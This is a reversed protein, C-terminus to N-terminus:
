FTFVSLKIDSLKCQYTRPLVLRIYQAEDGAFLYVFYAGWGNIERDTFGNVSDAKRIYENNDESVNVTTGVIQAKCEDSLPTVGLAKLRKKGELKLTIEKNGEEKTFNAKIRSSLDDQKIESKLHDRDNKWIKLLSVGDIKLDYVPNLFRELYQYRFTSSFMDQGVVSLIQYEGELNFGSRSGNSPDIDERLTARSLNQANGSVLALKAYPQAYKNLWKVGQLTVSGYTNGYGPFDREAAGKFGGLLSNFYVNEFPHIKAMQLYIPVYGLILIFSAFYIVIKPKIKGAFFKTLIKVLSGRLFLAGVGAIMAVPAVFEMIQRLGGYISTLSLTVRLLTFFFLSLWLLTVYNKGRFKLISVFSGVLVLFLSFLPLTYIFYQLTIPQTCETFWGRTFYFHKCSSGGIDRYFKIVELFKAVPDPWLAPWSLFFVLLVIIPYILLMLIMKKSLFDFKTSSAYAVIWPFLVFSAFVFNLKTGLSAGGALASFFLYLPKKKVFSLWFFYLAVTYFAAMPPDKVNFHSESFLLPFGYLTLVAIIAAFIGFTQKTWVSITLALLFTTFVSYLHYANLDEVWGLYKYFINNSVALMIDSFAPHGYTAKAVWSNFDLLNSEYESVRVNRHRDCVEGTASDVRSNLNYENLCFKPLDDYNTKGTLIYRLYAQGRAFHVPSDWNMGYDYITLLGVILFILPLFLASFRTTFKM